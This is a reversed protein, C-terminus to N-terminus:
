KMIDIRDNRLKILVETICEFIQNKFNLEIM